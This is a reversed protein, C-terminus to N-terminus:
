GSKDGVDATVINSSAHSRVAGDTTIPRAAEEVAEVLAVQDAESLQSVATAM